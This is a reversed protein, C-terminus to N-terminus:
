RRVQLKYTRYIQLSSDVRFLSKYSDDMTTYRISKWPTMVFCYLLLTASAHRHPPIDKYKGGMILQHITKEAAIYVMVNM